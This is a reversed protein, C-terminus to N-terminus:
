MSSPGPLIRIAHEPWNPNWNRIGETCHWMRGRNVLRAGADAAIDVIRGDVYAPVGIIMRKPLTGM